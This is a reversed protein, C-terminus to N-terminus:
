KSGFFTHPKVPTSDTTKRTSLGGSLGEIYLRNGDRAAKSEAGINSFARKVPREGFIKQYHEAYAPLGEHPLMEPIIEEKAKQLWRAFAKPKAPEFNWKDAFNEFPMTPNAIWYEGDRKEIYKEMSGLIGKMAAFTTDESDYARAALTTIIISIPADTDDNQFSIDRHRKLLQIVKQLPTRVKYTPVATVDVKQEAAYVRKAQFLITEMRSEFWKRYAYPNSYRAEYWGDENKHTLMIETFYPEQYFRRPVCPLIDMHFEDYHLTWCRKGEKELMRSYREHEKLRDGVINKVDSLPLQRGEHLLCILDIDYDDRDDIPRIVTGLAMSGQPEIRPEYDIGDCLWEGVSIYSQVAKDQMTQTINLEDAIRSLIKDLTEETATM